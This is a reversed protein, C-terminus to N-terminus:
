KTHSASHIMSSEEEQRTGKRTKRPRPVDKEIWPDHWIKEIAMAEITGEKNTM